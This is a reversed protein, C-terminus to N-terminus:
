IIGIFMWNIEEINEDFELGCYIDWEHLLDDSPNNLEKIISYQYINHRQINNGLHMYKPDFIRAACFLPHTPHNPIHLEFKKFAAQFAAQFISYVASPNFHLSTILNELEIGFYTVMRNSELYATLNTLRTEVFPFVPKKQQQFFDM